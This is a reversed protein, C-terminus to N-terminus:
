GFRKKWWTGNERHKKQDSKNSYQAKINDFLRDMFKQHHSKHVRMAHMREVCAAVDHHTRANFTYTCSFLIVDIFSVWFVM